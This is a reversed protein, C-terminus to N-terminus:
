YLWSTDKVKIFTEHAYSSRNSNQDHTKEFGELSQRWLVKVTEKGTGKLKV